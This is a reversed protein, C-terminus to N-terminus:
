QAPAAPAGGAPADSQNEQMQQQAEEEKRQEEASMFEPADKLEDKTLDSIATKDEVNVQDIRSWPVGVDKQGMGLFGGVGVVVGELKDNDDLILDTVKGIESADDGPGDRLSIGIINKALTQSDDQQTIFGGDASDSADASDDADASSADTSGATDAASAADDGNDQQMQASDQADADDAALAAASGLTLATGALVAALTSKSILLKTQM